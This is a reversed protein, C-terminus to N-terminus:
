LLRELAEELEKELKKRAKVNVQAVKLGQEKLSTYFVELGINILRLEDEILAKYGL